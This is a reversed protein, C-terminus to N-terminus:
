LTGGIRSEDVLEWGHALLFDISDIMFGGTTMPDPNWSPRDEEVLVEITKYAAYGRPNNVETVEVITELHHIAHRGGDWYPRSEFLKFRTGVKIESSNM